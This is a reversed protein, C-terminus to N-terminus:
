APTETLLHCYKCSRPFPPKGTPAELAKCPFGRNLLVSLADTADPRKCAALYVGEGDFESVDDAEQMHGQLFFTTPQYSMIPNPAKRWISRVSAAYSQWTVSEKLGTLEQLPPQSTGCAGLSNYPVETTRALNTRLLHWGRPTPYMASPRASISKSPKAHRSACVKSANWSREGGTGGRVNCWVPCTEQRVVLV